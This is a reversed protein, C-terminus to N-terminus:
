YIKGLGKSNLWGEVVAPADIYNTAINEGAM